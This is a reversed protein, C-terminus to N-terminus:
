QTPPHIEEIHNSGKTLANQISGMDVFFIYPKLLMKEYKKGVAAV